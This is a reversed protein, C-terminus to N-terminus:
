TGARKGMWDAVDDWWVLTLRGGARTGRLEGRAIALRLTRVPVHAARAADPVTFTIVQAGEEYAETL